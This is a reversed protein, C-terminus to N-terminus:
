SSPEEEADVKLGRAWAEAAWRTARELPDLLVDEHGQDAVTKKIARRLMREARWLHLEGECELEAEPVASGHAISNRVFTFQTFWWGLLTMEGSRPAGDRNAWHRMSTPEGPPDLLACLASRVVEIKENDTDLVADFGSRLALLRVHQTISTTNRWAIDLWDATLGLRRATDTEATLCEFLAAAFLWDIRAGLLPIHLEAPPKIRLNEEGLRLGGVTTRVM